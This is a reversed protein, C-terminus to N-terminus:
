AETLVLRVRRCGLEAAKEIITELRSRKVAAVVLELDPTAAQPRLQEVCRLVVQRKGARTIMASWEGDAGNFVALSAGVGQRMVNALYHSQDADLELEAGAALPHSVFLRIM